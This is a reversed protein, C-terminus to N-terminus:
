KFSKFITRLCFYVAVAGVVQMVHTNDSHLQLARLSGTALIIVALYAELNRLKGQKKAPAETKYTKSTKINKM